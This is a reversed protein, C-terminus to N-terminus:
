SAPNALITISGLDRVTIRLPQPLDGTTIAGTQASSARIYTTTFNTAAVFYRTYSTGATLGTLIFEATYGNSAGDDDGNVRFWGNTPTTTSTSANHLGIRLNTASNTLIADFEMKVSVQGSSPATFVVKAFRDTADSNLNIATATLSVAVTHTVLATATLQTMALISTGGTGGGPTTITIINGSADVALGNVPTGAPTDSVKLRGTITTNGSLSNTGDGNIIFRDTLVNAGNEITRVTYTTGNGIADWNESSTAEIQAGDNYSAATWTGTFQFRGLLDGSLIATPLAVTGRSRTLSLTSYNTTSATTSNFISSASKLYIQTQDIGSTRHFLGIESDTFDPNKLIQTHGSYTNNLSSVPNGAFNFYRVTNATGTAGTVLSDVYQKDVLSRNTYDASYDAFYEAGNFGVYGRILLVGNTISNQLSLTVDSTSILSIKGEISAQILANATGDTASMFPGKIDFSVERENAGNNSRLGYGDTVDIWIPGTTAGLTLTETLNQTGGPAGTPGVPLGTLLSGDGIFYGATVNNHVVLDTFEDINVQFQTADSMEISLAEVAPDWAISSIQPGAIASLDVEYADLTDTRDFHIVSGSLTAGTTYFNDGATIGTLQSGDGYFVGAHVDGTFTAGQAEINAGFTIETGVPNITDVLIPANFTVGNTFDSTAGVTGGNWSASLGTLLSGDGTFTLAEINGTFTASAGTLTDFEGASAGMLPGYIPGSYTGGISKSVFDGTYGGSAGTGGFPMIGNITRIWTLDDAANLFAEGIYLDTPLWTGDTHDDSLPITPVVTTTNSYKWQIRSNQIFM